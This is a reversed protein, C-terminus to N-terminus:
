RLWSTRCRLRVELAASAQILKAKHSNTPRATAWGVGSCCFAMRLLQRDSKMDFQEPTGRPPASANCHRCRLRALSEGAQRVATLTVIGRLAGAGAAAGTAAGATEAGGGAAVAGAAAADLGGAGGVAGTAAAGLTAGAVAGVAVGRWLVVAAGAGRAAAGAGAALGGTWGEVDVTAVGATRGSGIVGSETRARMSIARAYLPSWSAMQRVTLGPPPWMM